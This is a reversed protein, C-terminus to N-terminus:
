SEFIGAPTPGFFVWCNVQTQFEEELEIEDGKKSALVIQVESTDMKDDNVAPVKDEKIETTTADVVAEKSEISPIQPATLEDPVIIDVKAGSSDITDTFEIATTHLDTQKAERARVNRSMGRLAEGIPIERYLLRPRPMTGALSPIPLAMLLLIGFYTLRLLMM